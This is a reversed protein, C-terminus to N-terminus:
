IIYVKSIITSIITRGRKPLIALKVAEFKKGALSLIKPGRSVNPWFNAWRPVTLLTKREVLNKNHHSTQQKRYFTQEESKM